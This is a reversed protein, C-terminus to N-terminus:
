ESLEDAIVTLEVGDNQCHPATEPVVHVLELQPLEPPLALRARRPRSKTLAAPKSSIDKVTDNEALLLM